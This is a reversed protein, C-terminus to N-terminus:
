HEGESLAKMVLVDIVTTFLTLSDNRVGVLLSPADNFFGIALAIFDQRLETGLLTRKLIRNVVQASKFRVVTGRNRLVQLLEKPIQLGVCLRLLLASTTSM